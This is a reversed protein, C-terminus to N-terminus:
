AGGTALNKADRTMENLIRQLQVIAVETLYEGSFGNRAPIASPLDAISVASPAGACLREEVGYLRDFRNQTGVLVIRADRIAGGGDGGGGRRLVVSLSFSAYDFNLRVFRYWGYRADDYLAFRVATVITGRRASNETLYEVIPVSRRSEARTAGDGTGGVGGALEVEADLAVLPGILGSWPPFMAVSGGVTIRNRLAPTATERLAQVLLHTEEGVAAARELLEALTATAGVVLHGGEETIAGLGARSLDVLLGERPDSRLLGTGGGHLRATPNAALTHLAEGVTDPHAWTIGSM